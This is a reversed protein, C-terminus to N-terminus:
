KNKKEEPRKLTINKLENKLNSYKFRYLIVANNNSDYYEDFVAGYKLYKGAENEIQPMLINIDALGDNKKAEQKDLYFKIIEDIIAKRAVSSINTIAAKHASDRQENLTLSSDPKGIIIVQYIDDGLFGSRNFNNLASNDDRHQIACGSLM